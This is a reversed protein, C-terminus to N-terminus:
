RCSESFGGPINGLVEQGLLQRGDIFLGDMLCRLCCPIQNILQELSVSILDRIQSLPSDLQLQRRILDKIQGCYLAEPRLVQDHNLAIRMLVTLMHCPNCLSFYILNKNISLWKIKNTALPPISGGVCPNETWLIYHKKSNIAIDFIILFDYFCCTSLFIGIM